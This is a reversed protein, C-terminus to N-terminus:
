YKWLNYEQMVKKLGICNDTMIGNVGFEILTRMRSEDNITWVHVKLGTKNVFEIFNKSVFKWGYFREPIQICGASFKLNKNLLFGLYCYMVGLPGLSYCVSRGLSRIIKNVRLDNFGGICIRDYSQTSQIVNCLPQVVQWSKADINIGADPFEELISTLTPIRYGHTTELKKVEVATLSNLLIPEGLIRELNNDHCVFVESDLSARVDLEFNKFGLQYAISFADFTNEQCIKSAGRHAFGMFSYKNLFPFTSHLKVM